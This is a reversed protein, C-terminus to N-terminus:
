DKTIPKCFHRQNARLMPYSFKIRYDHDQLLQAMNKKNFLRLHEVAIVERWSMLDKPVKYHGTDPTTLFLTTNPHSVKRIAETFGHIDPVHEIVESCYIIDFTLGKNAFEQITTNHYNSQPYKKKAFSVAEANLEIGHSECGLRRASETFYGANSGIDLFKIPEKIGKFFRKIKTYFIIPMLKLTKRHINRVTFGGAYAQDFLEQSPVVPDFILECSLCRHYEFTEGWAKKTGILTSEQSQCLPCSVSQMASDTM